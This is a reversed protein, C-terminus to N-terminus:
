GPKCATVVSAIYARRARHDTVGVFGIEQLKESIQAQSRVQGTRMAMTYFAFYSDTARLPTDGGSMPEAVVLRGGPPLAEFVNRLLRDVTEDGHDYLVRVLTITDARQPLPELFSGGVAEIGSDPSVGGVVDPLDFVIRALDPYAAGLHTLFAGTGGGVDMVVRSGGFSVTQLIEEAVMAQSQAMLESYRAAMRPEAAAAGQGLVYPWFNALETEREGRLLAVPDSMDGYLISHHRVMEMLGPVGTLAAGLRALGYRGDRRRKLLGLAAASRCLVDMRQDSVKRSLALQEPAKPGRALEEFIELEVCALLTQTYVFGAVLDFLREGDKRVFRRTLPFRAAWRQFAPRAVMDTQWRTLAEMLSPRARAQGRGQDDAFGM